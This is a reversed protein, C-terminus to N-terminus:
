TFKCFDYIFYKPIRFSVEGTTVNVDFRHQIPEYLVNILCYNTLEIRLTAIDGRVPVGHDLAVLKVVVTSSENYVIRYLDVSSNYRSLPPRFFKISVPYLLM